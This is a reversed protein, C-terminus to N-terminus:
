SNTVYAMMLPRLMANEKELEWIRRRADALDEFLDLVANAQRVAPYDHPDPLANRWGDMSENYPRHAFGDFLYDGEKYKM